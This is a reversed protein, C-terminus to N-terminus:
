TQKRMKNISKKIILKAQYNSNFDNDCYTLGATNKYQNGRPFNDSFYKGLKNEINNIEDEFKYQIEETTETGKHKDILIKLNDEYKKIEAKLKEIKDMEINKINIKVEM